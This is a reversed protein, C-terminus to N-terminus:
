TNKQTSFILVASKHMEAWRQNFEPNPIVREEGIRPDYVTTEATDIERLTVMHYGGKITWSAFPLFAYLKYEPKTKTFNIIESLEELTLNQKLAVTVDLYPFSKRFEPTLFFNMVHAAVGTGREDPVGLEGKAIVQLFQSYLEATVPIGTITSFASMFSAGVCDADSTQKRGVIPDLKVPIPDKAAAEEPKVLRFLRRDIGKILPMYFPLESYFHHHMGEFMKPLRKFGKDLVSLVDTTNVSSRRVDPSVIAM